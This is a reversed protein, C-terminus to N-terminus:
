KPRTALPMLPHVGWRNPSLGDDLDRVLSWRLPFGLPIFVNEAALEGEARALAAAREAGEPLSRAEAAMRDAVPSCPGKLVACGLQNLYWESRGYRAVLDLLRLDASAGENVRRLSLGMVALDRSLSGFMQDAGPGAPLALRLVVPGPNRAQWQAVRARAQRQREDLNVATWAPDGAGSSGAVGVPVIARMPAWVKAGIAAGVAERDIAMAVAERNERDSLFGQRSLVVLGFLGPAPDFVITGGALGKREALPLDAFRGGTVVDAERADFAAIARAAPQSRLEVTRVKDAWDPPQPLGRQSPPIVTLIAADHDRRLRMPGSGRGRHVLGLEPQALLQLLDPQSHTLRLEIVRSAMARVEGIPALDLGLSTGALSGLAQRLAARASEATIPAGDAWKGDRLRFIYSQGDDTVIWREALAPVVRGEADLAVLGESTAARVMQAPQALRAGREFPSAPAGIAIVRVAAEGGGLCGGISAALCLSLSFRALM